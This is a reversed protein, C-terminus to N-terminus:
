PCTPFAGTDQVPPFPKGAPNTYLQRRGSQTDVVQVTVGVDTLGALFVWYRQNLPCGNLVKVVLEVNSPSTFTFYGSEDTLAVGQAHGQGFGPANWDASVEFRGQRLALTPGFLGVTFVTEAETELVRLRYKDAALRGLPVRVVWSPLTTCPAGPLPADPDQDIFVLTEGARPEFRPQKYVLPCFTRFEALVAQEPSPRAPEVRLGVVDGNRSVTLSSTALPGFPCSEGEAEQCLEVDYTGFPLSEVEETLTILLPTAICDDVPGLVLRVTGNASGPPTVESRLDAGCDPVEEVTFVVPDAPSPNLPSSSLTYAELSAAALSVLAVFFIAKRIM